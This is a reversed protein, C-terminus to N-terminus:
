LGGYLTRYTIKFNTVSWRRNFTFYNQGNHLKMPTTAGSFAGLISTTTGSRVRQVYKAGPVTNIRIVDGINFASLLSLKGDSGLKVLELRGESIAETITYELLFGVPINGSYPINFSAISADPITVTTQAEGPRRFYPEPCLISIQVSPKDSFIDPEFSEVYGVISMAGLDSDNFFLDVKSKPTFVEYLKRRLDTVTFGRSYDPRYEVKIVINRVSDKSSLFTSGAESALEVTSIEAKVPGLGDVSKFRFQSDADITVEKNVANTYPMRTRAIIRNFM